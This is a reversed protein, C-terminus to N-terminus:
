NPVLPYLLPSELSGCPALPPGQHDPSVGGTFGWRTCQLSPSVMSCGQLSTRACVRFAHLPARRYWPYGAIWSSWSEQSIRVVEISHLVTKVATSMTMLPMSGWMILHFGLNPTPKTQNTLGLRDQQNPRDEVISKTTHGIDRKSTHLRSLHKSAKPITM